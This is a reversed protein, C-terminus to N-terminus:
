HNTGSSGGETGVEAPSASPSPSKTPTPSKTSKHTASPSPSETSEPSSTSSTGTSGYPNAQSQYNSNLLAAKSAPFSIKNPDGDSTYLVSPNKKWIPFYYDSNLEVTPSDSRVRAIKLPNFSKAFPSPAPNAGVLMVGSLNYSQGNYTGQSALARDVPFVGFPLAMTTIKFGPLAKQIDQYNGGIEQQVQADSDKSLVPHTKTHVGVDYGHQVLWPLVKPDQFPSDNVYFTATSHWDPHAQGFAEMMGLATDPKPNGSPDLGAQSTTGDDFTMVMPHKGAPVDIKGAVLDAATIPRFNMDYLTQLEAKFHDPTQSYEDGKPLTTLIQHYMFVPVEGLENADVSAPDVSSASPTASPTATVVPAPAPPAQATSGKSGCGALLLGAAAVALVSRPRRMTLDGQPDSDNRGIM